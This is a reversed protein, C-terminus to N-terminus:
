VLIYNSWGEHALKNELKGINLWKTVIVQWILADVCKKAWNQANEWRVLVPLTAFFGIAPYWLLVLGFQVHCVMFGDMQLNQSSLAGLSLSLSLSLSLIKNELKGINLWKAVIVRWILADDCKPEIKHMKGRSWFHPAHRLIWYRSILTAGVRVTCSM